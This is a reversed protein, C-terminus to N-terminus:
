VSNPWICEFQNKFHFPLFAQAFHPCNRLIKRYAYLNKKRASFFLCLSFHFCCKEKLYFYSSHSHQFFSMIFPSFLMSHSLFLFFTFPCKTKIKERLLSTPLCFKWNKKIEQSQNNEYQREILALLRDLSFLTIQVKMCWAQEDCKIVILLWHFITILNEWCPNWSHKWMRRGIKQGTQLPSVM